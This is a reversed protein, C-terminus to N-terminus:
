RWSSLMYHPFIVDHVQSQDLTCEVIIMNTYTGLVHLPPTSNQRETTYSQKCGWPGYGALEETWSVEWSFHQFAREEKLPNEWGLPGVLM